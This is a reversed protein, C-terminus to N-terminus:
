VRYDEAEIIRRAIARRLRTTNSPTYRTLKKLASLQTWLTDGEEMSALGEKALLDIRAFADSMYVKVMDSKSEVAGEGDREVSKLTRLLASEMAFLEIVLDSLVGLIEQEDALRERYKQVAAGSVM